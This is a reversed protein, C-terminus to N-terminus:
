LLKEAFFILIDLLVTSSQSTTLTRLGIMLLFCWWFLRQHDVLIRWSDGYVSYRNWANRCINLTYWYSSWNRTLTNYKYLRTINFCPSWFRLVVQMIYFNIWWSYINQIVRTWFSSACCSPGVHGFYVRIAVHFPSILSLVTIICRVIDFCVVVFTFMHMVMMIVVLIWSWSASIMGHKNTM